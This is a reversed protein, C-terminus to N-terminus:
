VKRAVILHSPPRVPYSGTEVIRFGSSGIEADMDATKLFRVFPAKGLWQLLPLAKRMLNFKWGLDPEGICPTKSIYSGGEKLLDHVRRHVETADEMLHVVNLALVVDFTGPELRADHVDAVLFRVNHAGQRKRAEAIMGGAFDTAVIEGAEGALRLATGGTGCGIELVRAGCPLHARIRELTAVYAAEDGIPKAAYKPAIGSWFQKGPKM